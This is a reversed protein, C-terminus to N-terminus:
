YLFQRLQPFYESWPPGMNWNRLDSAMMEFEPNLEVCGRETKTLLSKGPPLVLRLSRLYLDVSHRADKNQNLCLYNRLAPFPIFDICKPHSITIQAPTPRMIAPVDGMSDASPYYRWRLLRYALLFVGCLSDIHTIDYQRLISSVIAALPNSMDTHHLLMEPLTPDRPATMVRLSNHSSVSSLEVAMIVAIRETCQVDASHPKGCRCEVLLGQDRVEALLAAMDMQAELPRQPFTHQAYLRETISHDTASTCFAAAAAAAADVPAPGSGPPSNWPEPKTLSLFPNSLNHLHDRSSTSPGSHSSAPSLRHQPPAQNVNLQRLQVILDGMTHRLFSVDREIAELRTKNEARNERHKIKDISRKKGLQEETLTRKVRPPKTDM